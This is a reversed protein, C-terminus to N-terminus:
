AFSCLSLGDDSVIPLVLSSTTGTVNVKWCTYSTDSYFMFSSHLGYSGSISQEIQMVEFTAGAVMGSTAKPDKFHLHTVVLFRGNASLSASVGPFLPSATASSAILAFVFWFALLISKNSNAASMLVEYKLNM